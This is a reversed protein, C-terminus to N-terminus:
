ICPRKTVSRAPIAYRSIFLLTIFINSIETYIVLFLTVETNTDTFIKKVFLV